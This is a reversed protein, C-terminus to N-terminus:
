CVISKLCRRAYNKCSWMPRSLRQLQLRQLWHRLPHRRNEPAEAEPNSDFTRRFLGM